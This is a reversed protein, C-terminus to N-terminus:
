NFNVELAAIDAPNYPTLDQLRDAFQDFLPDPSEGGQIFGDSNFYGPAETNQLYADIQEQPLGPFATQIQETFVNKLSNEVLLVTRDNSDLNGSPLGVEAVGISGKHIGSAVFAWDFGQSDTFFTANPHYSNGYVDIVEGKKGVFMKLTSISYPDVEPDELPLNDITVIMHADYNGADESYEIRYIADGAEADKIRDINYPKLIAVGKIVEKNWFVQMAKGGDDNGESEADTITISWEFEQGEYTAGEEVVMNKIRGDDDSEYSLFFAKSIKFSNLGGLIAENLDGAGEGIAIFLSLLEYIENGNLEDEATRGAKRGNAADPNALPDPVDISFRDPLVSEETPPTDISDDCSVAFLMLVILSLLAVLNIKKM